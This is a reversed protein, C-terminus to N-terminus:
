PLCCREDMLLVLAASPFGPERERILDFAHISLRELLANMTEGGTAVIADYRHRSLAIEAEDVLTALAKAPESTRIHPTRICVVSAAEHLDTARM